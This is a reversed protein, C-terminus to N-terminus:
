RPSSISSIRLQRAKSLIINELRFKIDEQVPAEVWAGGKGQVQKNILVKLADSRLDKGIIRITIKLREQPTQPVAYWDTIIIGGTADASQLPLFAITELSAQWLYTNISAVPTQDVTRKIAGSGFLLFEEGFAKGFNTKREEEVPLPAPAEKVQGCGSLICVCGLVSLLGVFQEWSFLRRENNNNHM